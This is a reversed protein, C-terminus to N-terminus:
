IGDDDTEGDNEYVLVMVMLYIQIVQLFTRTESQDPDSVYIKLFFNLDTKILQSPGLKLKRGHFIM